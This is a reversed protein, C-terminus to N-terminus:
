VHPEGGNIGVTLLLVLLAGVLVAAVTLVIITRHHM